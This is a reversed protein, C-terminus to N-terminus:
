PCGLYSLSSALDNWQTDTFNGSTNNPTSNDSGSGNYGTSLAVEFVRRRRSGAANYGTPAARV